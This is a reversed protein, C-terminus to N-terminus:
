FYLPINSTVFLVYRATEDFFEELTMTTVPKAKVKKSPEKKARNLAEVDDERNKQKIVFNSTRLDAAPEESAQTQTAALIRDALDDGKETEM